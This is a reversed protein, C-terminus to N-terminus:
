NWFVHLSLKCEPSRHPLITRIVIADPDAAHPAAHLTESHVQGFFKDAPMKFPQLAKGRHAREFRRPACLIADAFDHCFCPPLIETLFIYFCRTHGRRQYRRVVNALVADNQIQVAAAVGAAPKIVRATEARDECGFAAYAHEAGGIAERRFVGVGGREVIRDFCVTIQEGGAIQRPLYNECAFARAAPETVAKHETKAFEADGEGGSDDRYRRPRIKSLASFAIDIIFFGIRADKFRREIM